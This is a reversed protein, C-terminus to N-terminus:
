YSSGATTPRVRSWRCPRGRFVSSLHSLKGGEPALNLVALRDGDRRGGGPPLDSGFEEPREDCGTDVQFERASERTGVAEAQRRYDISLETPAAGGVDVGLREPHARFFGSLLECLDGRNESRGVTGILAKKEDADGIPFSLRGIHVSVDMEAFAEVARDALEGLSLEDAIGLDKALRPLCAALYYRGLM